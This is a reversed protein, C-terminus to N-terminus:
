LTSLTLWENGRFSVSLVGCSSVSIPRFFVPNLGTGSYLSDRKCDSSVFSLTRLGSIGERGSGTSSTLLLSFCFDGSNITVSSPSDGGNQPDSGASPNSVVVCYTNLLMIMGSTTASFLSFLCSLLSTWSSLSMCCRFFLLHVSVTM